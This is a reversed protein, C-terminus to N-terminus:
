VFVVDAPVRGGGSSASFTGIAESNGALELMWFFCFRSV